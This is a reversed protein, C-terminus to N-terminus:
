NGELDEDGFGNLRRAAAWLIDLDRKPLARAAGPEMLPEGDEGFCAIEVMSQVLAHGSKEVTEYVRYADVGPLERVEVVLDTMPLHVKESAFRARARLDAATLM